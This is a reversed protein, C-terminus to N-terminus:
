PRAGVTWPEGGAESHRRVFLEILREQEQGTSATVDIIDGDIELRVHREAQDGRALWGRVTTVVAKLTGPSQALTVLMAGVAAVDLARAGEPIEGGSVPVVNEVPLELIEERLFRTHADLRDADAGTEVLSVLLQEHV